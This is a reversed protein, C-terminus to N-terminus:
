FRNWRGYRHAAIWIMDAHIAEAHVAITEALETGYLVRRSVDVQYSPPRLASPPWVVGKAMSVGPQNVHLFEVDASLATAFALANRVMEEADAHLDVAALVKAARVKSSAVM